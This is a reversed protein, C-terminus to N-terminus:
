VEGADTARDSGERDEDCSELVFATVPHSLASCVCELSEFTASILTQTPFPSVRTLEDYEGSGVGFYVLSDFPQFM